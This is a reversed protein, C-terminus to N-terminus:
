SCNQCGSALIMLLHGKKKTKNQKTKIYVYKLGYRQVSNSPSGTLIYTLIHHTKLSTKLK